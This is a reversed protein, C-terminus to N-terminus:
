WVYCGKEAEQRRSPAGCLYSYPASTAGPSPVVLEAISLCPYTSLPSPQSAQLVEWLLCRRPLHPLLATGRPLFSSAELLIRTEELGSGGGKIQRQVTAEDLSEEETHAFHARLTPPPFLLGEATPQCRGAGLRAGAKDWTSAKGTPEGDEM